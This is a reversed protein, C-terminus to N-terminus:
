ALALIVSACAFYLVPKGMSEGFAMVLFTVVLVIFFHALVYRKTFKSAYVSYKSYTARSLERPPAHVYAKPKWAPSGFIAGLKEAGRSLKWLAAMDGFYHIQAWIPNFSGLPKTIGYICPENEDEFSGFMRDWVILTAAYNKDLYQSNIAHHVRHHHPLNFIANLPGGIKPVLETHIWFQYLTSLAYITAFVLPPVGILALPMHFPLITWSTLVAQRLAVALNYDESQHHVVHAAWMFNVEHSARHWWYYAFDVVVFAVLWQMWPKSITVLRHDYVLTYIALLTAGVLAAEIQSAIGCSLDAISDVFRYVSMKKKRAYLMEGGILLFFFPVAIAIPNVM